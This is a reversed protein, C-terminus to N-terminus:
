WPIEGHWTSAPRYCYNYYFYYKVSHGWFRRVEKKDM